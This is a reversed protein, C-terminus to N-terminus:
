EPRAHSTEEKLQRACVDQLDKIYRAFAPVDKLRKKLVDDPQSLVVRDQAFGRELLRKEIREVGLKNRYQFEEGTVATVTETWKDGVAKLEPLSSKTVEYSLKDGILKWQLELVITRKAEGEVFIDAVTEVRGDRHITSIQDIVHNNAVEEFKWKGVLREPWRAMEAANAPNEGTEAARLLPSALLCALIALVQLIM